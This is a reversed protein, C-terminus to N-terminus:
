ADPERKTEAIRDAPLESAPVIERVPFKVVRGNGVNEYSAMYDDAELLILAFSQNGSELFMYPSITAWKGDRKRVLRYGVFGDPALVGDDPQHSFGFLFETIEEIWRRKTSDASQTAGPGPKGHAWENRMQVLQALARERKIVWASFEGAVTDGGELLSRSHNLLNRLIYGMSLRGGIKSIDSSTSSTAIVVLNLWRLFTECALFFSRDNKDESQILQGLVSADLPSPLKVAKRLMSRRLEILDFRARYYAVNQQDFYFRASSVILKQFQSSSAFVQLVRFIGAATPIDKIPLLAKGVENLLTASSAEVAEVGREYAELVASGFPLNGKLFGEKAVLHATTASATYGLYVHSLWLGLNAFGANQNRVTEAVAISGCKAISTEFAKIAELPRQLSLLAMGIHNNSQYSGRTNGIEQSLIVNKQFCVISKEFEFCSLYLRGLNGYTIARGLTDDLDEKVELSIRYHAEANQFENERVEITGLMDLARCRLTKPIEARICPSLLERSRALESRRYAVYAEAFSLFALVSDKNSLEERIVRKRIKTVRQLVDDAALQNSVTSFHVVLKAYVVALTYFLQGQVEKNLEHFRIRELSYLIAECHLRTQDDDDQLRPSLTEEALKSLEEPSRLSIASPIPTTRFFASLGYAGIVLAISLVGISAVPAGSVVAILIGVVTVATNVHTANQKYLSLLARM